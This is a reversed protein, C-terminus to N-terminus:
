STGVFLERVAGSLAISDGQSKAQLEAGIALLSRHEIYGSRLKLDFHRRLINFDLTAQTAGGIQLGESIAECVPTLNPASLTINSLSLSDLGAQKAERQRITRDEESFM